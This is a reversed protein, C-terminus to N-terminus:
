HMANWVRVFITYWLFPPKYLSFQAKLYLDVNQMFYFTLKRAFHWNCFAFYHAISYGYVPPVLWHFDLILKWFSFTGFSRQLSFCFLTYEQNCTWKGKSFLVLVSKKAVPFCWFLLREGKLIYKFSIFNEPLRLTAQLLYILLFLPYYSTLYWSHVSIVRSQLHFICDLTM